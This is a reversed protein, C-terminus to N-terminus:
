QPIRTHPQQDTQHATWTHETTGDPLTHPEWHGHRTIPPPPPGIKLATLVGTIVTTIALALLVAFAAGVLFRSM